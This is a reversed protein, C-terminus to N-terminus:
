LVTRQVNILHHKQINKSPHDTLIKLTSTAYPSAYDISNQYVIQRTRYFTRKGRKGTQVRSGM